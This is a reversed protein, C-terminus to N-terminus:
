GPLKGEQKLGAFAQRVDLHAVLETNTHHWARPVTVDAKIDPRSNLGGFWDWEGMVDIVTKFLMPMAVRASVTVVTAAEGLAQARPKDQAKLQYLAESIVLNGKSHGALLSFGLRTDTLLAVVTQTDKSRRAVDGFSAETSASSTMGLADLGEFMHRLGNLQGFLFFGGLAETMMDALGYGSVVAAVPKGIADAVNRAFAASGLASSGVGAVALTTIGAGGGAVFDEVSVCLALAGQGTPPVVLIAGEAALWPSLGRAEDPSIVRVDYFLGDLLANRRRAGELAWDAPPKAPLRAASAVQRSLQNISVTRATELM